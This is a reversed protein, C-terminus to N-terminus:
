PGHHMPTKEGKMWKAWDDFIGVGWLAGIISFLAGATWAPEAAWAPLGLLVRVLITTAMGTLMGLIQGIIARTLGLSSLSM